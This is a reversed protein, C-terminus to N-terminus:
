AAAVLRRALANHREIVRPLDATALQGGRVVFRGGVITHKM